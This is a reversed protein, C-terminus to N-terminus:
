RGQLQELRAFAQGLLPPLDGPLLARVSTTQAAIDAALGHLFVGLRAAEGAEIGQALLGAILGTLVDGSGGKALGTNGSPNIWRQGDPTTIVTQAGKLVVVVGHAASFEVFAGLRDRQVDDTARGLLEAAEGPHPTLITPATRGRLLGPDRALLRLGDADVVLPRAVQAAVERVFGATADHRGLGPGLAVADVTEAARLVPAVHDGAFWPGDAELPLKVPEAVLSEIAGGLPRPYAMYVLGAGSRAAGHATLVPAGTMGESGGLVLVRGFTGKHGDPDRPPLLAAAERLTLMNISVAPDHLLDDPFGIGEVVVSGTFRVGPTVAMGLKPLGITLTATARVCPGWDADTVGDGPLGSPIDISLVNVRAANIAEIAERWPSRVPGRLGTGFIADIVLDFPELHRRLDDAAPQVVRHLDGPMEEYATLADGSLEEPPCLMFLTVHVDAAALERAAVFGDGANNGKGTVIAVTAPEFRQIAERAVARGAREMLEIGPIGRRQITEEDIRRMQEATVIKM